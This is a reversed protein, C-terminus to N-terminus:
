PIAEETEPPPQATQTAFIAAQTARYRITATLNLTPVPTNTLRIVEGGGNNNQVDETLLEGPLPLPTWTKTPTASPTQTLTPTRTPSVTDTATASVRSTPSLSPTMTLTPTATMTASPTASLTPSSTPTATPSPTATTMPQSLSPPLVSDPKRYDGDPAPHVLALLDARLLESRSDLPLDRLRAESDKLYVILRPTTEEDAKLLAQATAEYVDILITSDGTGSEALTEAEDLRTGALQLWVDDQSDNLSSLALIIAEWFRKLPYLFDGPVSSASAAVAGGGTGLALLFVIAIMAALKRYPAFISTRRSQVLMQGRLRMELADVRADELVPKKLRRTLLAIQLAPRLAAEHDPYRALIEDLSSEASLLAELCEEVIANIHESDNV